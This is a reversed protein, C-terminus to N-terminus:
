PDANDCQAAVGVPRQTCASPAVGTKNQHPQGKRRRAHIDILCREALMNVSMAVPVSAAQVKLM